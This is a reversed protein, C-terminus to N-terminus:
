NVAIHFTGNMDKLNLTKSNDATKLEADFEINFKIFNVSQTAADVMYVINSIKLTNTINTPNYISTYNVGNYIVDIFIRGYNNEVANSSCNSNELTWKYNGNKVYVLTSYFAKNEYDDEVRHRVTHVGNSLEYQGGSSSSVLVNDIYWEHACGDDSGVFSFMNGNGYSEFYPDLIEDKFGFEMPLQYIQSNINSFKLNALYKGYEDLEITNGQFNNGEIEVQMYDAQTSGQPFDFSRCVPEHVLFSVDGGEIMKVGEEDLYIEPRVVTMKLEFGTSLDSITSSYAQVGNMNYPSEAIFVSTDNVELKLSDGNVLGELLYIPDNADEENIPPEIKKCAVTFLAIFFPILYHKKNM